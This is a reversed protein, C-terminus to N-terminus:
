KGYGQFNFFVKINLLLRATLLLLFFDLGLFQNPSYPVDSHESIIGFQDLILM